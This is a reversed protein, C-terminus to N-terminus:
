WRADGDKYFPILDVEIHGVPKSNEEVVTGHICGQAYLRDIACENYNFPPNLVEDWRHIAFVYLGVIAASFMLSHYKVRRESPAVVRFKFLQKASVLCVGALAASWLVPAVTRLLTPVRFPSSGGGHEMWWHVESLTARVAVYLLGLSATTLVVALLKTHRYHRGGLVGFDIRTGIWWWWVVIAPFWIAYQLTLSQLNLLKLIPSSLVFAPANTSYLLLYVAQYPWFPPGMDWGMGMLAVMRNNEYDWAMLIAALFGLVIPLVARFRIPTRQM